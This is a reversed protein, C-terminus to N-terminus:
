VKVQNSFAPKIFLDEFNNKFSNQRLPSHSKGRPVLPFACGCDTKLTNKGLTAEGGKGGSANKKRVKVM